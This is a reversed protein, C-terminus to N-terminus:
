VKLPLTEQFVSVSQHHLLRQYHRWSHTRHILGAGATSEPAAGLVGCCHQEGDHSSCRSACSMMLGASCRLCVASSRVWRQCIRDPKQLIEWRSASFWASRFMWFSLPCQQHMESVLLRTKNLRLTNGSDHEDQVQPARDSPDSNMEYEEMMSTGFVRWFCLSGDANVTPSHSISFTAQVCVIYVFTKNSFWATFSCVEDRLTLM